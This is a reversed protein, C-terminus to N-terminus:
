RSTEGDERPTNEAKMRLSRRKRYNIRKRMADLARRKAPEGNHREWNPFTIGDGTDILWGVDVMAEAIGPVGTADSLDGPCIGLVNGDITNDDAWGWVLMCAGAAHLPHVKMARAIRFMEPKCPLGKEWEIWHGAM